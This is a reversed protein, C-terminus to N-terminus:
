IKDSMYIGHVTTALNKFQMVSDVTVALCVSYPLPRRRDFHRQLSHKSGLNYLRDELPLNADNLCSPSLSLPTSLTNQMLIKWLHMDLLGLPPLFLVSRSRTRTHHGAHASLAAILLHRKYQLVYTSRSEQM